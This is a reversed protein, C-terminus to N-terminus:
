RTRSPPFPPSAPPRVMCEEADAVKGRALPLVTSFPDTTKFCGAAKSGQVAHHPDAVRWGDATGGRCGPPTFVGSTTGDTPVVPPLAARAASAAARPRVSPPKAAVLAPAALALAGVAAAAVLSRSRRM